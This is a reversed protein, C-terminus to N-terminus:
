EALINKTTDISNFTAISPLKQFRSQLEKRMSILEIETKSNIEQEAMTIVEKHQNIQDNLITREGSLCYDFILFLIRM